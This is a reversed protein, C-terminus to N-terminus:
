AKARTRGRELRIELLDAIRLTLGSFVIFFLATAIFFIFPEKTAGAAIKAAGVLDHLGALSVLPTEKLMFMWLNVLGPLALRMVQPMIVRWWMVFRPIALARAGEFQGKPLNGVAGRILEAIYAAYVISLAAIGAGFPSVDPALDGLVATLMASGGYFILFIVLLSPVGMFISAYVRWIAEIIRSGSLTAVAILMGFLMALAFSVLFLEMTVLAGAALQGLYGYFQAWSLSTWLSM